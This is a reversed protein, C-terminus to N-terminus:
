ELNPIVCQLLHNLIMLPVMILRTKLVDASEMGAVYLETLAALITFFLITSLTDVLTLRM